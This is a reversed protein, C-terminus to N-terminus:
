LLIFERSQLDDPLPVSDLPAYRAKSGPNLYPRTWDLTQQAFKVMIMERRGPGLTGSELLAQALLECRSLGFDKDDRPSEVLGIGAALRHSFLPIPDSLYPYIEKSAAELLARLVAYGAAEMELIASNFRGYLLPENLIKFIFRCAAHNLGRTLAQLLVPAGEASSNFYVAIRPQEAIPEGQNGVAIYYDGAFLSNPMRLSVMAGVTAGVAAGVTPDALLPLGRASSGPPMGDVGLHIKPDVWLHLGDKEIQMQHDKVAVIFWDPDLFGTGHNAAQLLGLFNIDLGAISNNMIPQAPLAVQGKKEQEGSFYIDHIYNRLQTLTYAYQLQEPLSRYQKLGQSPCEGCGPQALDLSEYAPHEIQLSGVRINEILDTLVLDPSFERTWLPLSAQSESKKQGPRDLKTTPSKPPIEPPDVGDFSHSASGLITARAVDPHCLLSKAVQLMSREVTEFPEHYHLADQIMRILGLGAFRFVRDLFDPFVDVIGPFQSMYDQLLAQISPQVTELPVAALKMAVALDVDRDLLLSKLWARLYEAVLAGVDFAPDGWKWQEWDILRVVSQDGALLLSSTSGPALQRRWGHWDEHLLVNNFKLDGHILCCRQSIAELQSIAECLDPTRQCLQYFKLGDVSVRQFISPTLHTLEHWYNPRHLQRSERSVAHPDLEVLYDNRQFTAQHLSALAVGLAGAVAAPYIQQDSYFDGLDHYRELYRYVIIENEEDYSIPESTLAQLTELEQHSRLLQSFRWEEDFGDKPIGARGVPGQKVVYRAAIEGASGAPSLQVLLNLNKGILQEVCAVADSPRCLTRQLLYAFVNHSGLRIAPM